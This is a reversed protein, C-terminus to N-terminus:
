DLDHTIAKAEFGFRHMKLHVRCRIKPVGSIDYVDVFLKRDFPNGGSPNGVLAM